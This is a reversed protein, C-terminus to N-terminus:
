SLNATKVKHLCIFPIDLMGKSFSFIIKTLMKKVHLLFYIERRLIYQM